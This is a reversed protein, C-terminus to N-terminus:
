GLERLEVESYWDQGRTDGIHKYASVLFTGAVNRSQLVARQRIALRPQLLTTVKWQPEASQTGTLEGESFNIREPAGIMGTAANIEVVDNSAGARPVILLEGNFVLWERGIRYMVQNLAERAPGEFAYGRPYVETIPPGIVRLPMELIASIVDLIQRATTNPGRSLTIIAERLPEIGDQAEMVTVVLPPTVKHILYQMQGFFIPRLGIDQRYGAFLTMNVDRDQLQNRTTAALNWISVQCRDNAETGSREVEFAIRLNDIRVLDGTEREVELAAIRDFQPM